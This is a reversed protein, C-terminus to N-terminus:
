ELTVRSFTRQPAGDPWKVARATVDCYAQLASPDALEIQGWAWLNYLLMEMAVNGTREGIGMATGHIRDVGLELAWLANALALGRDNHGHWDLGVHSAGTEAILGRTFELLNRLGDPTAYGVTDALCLRSAGHEIAAKWLIRLTAPNARTTDETVYAIEVGEKVAFDIAEVSRKVILDIDWSEALKRIESTGIFAYAVVPIGTKQAIDAIPGIDSAMTRAAAVPRIRLKCDAIERCARLSDERNRVSAAPLGVNVLDIRLRDMIHILEIKDEVVPDNASPSQIGDRLTEDQFTTVGPKVLQIAGEARNWDFAATVPDTYL